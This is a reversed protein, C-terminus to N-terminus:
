CFEANTDCVLYMGYPVCVRQQTLLRQLTKLFITFYTNWNRSMQLIQFHCVIFHGMFLASTQIEETSRGTFIASTTLLHKLTSKQNGAM